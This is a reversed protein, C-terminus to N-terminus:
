AESRSKRILVLSGLGLIFVTAPEPTVIAGARIIDDRRLKKISPSGNDNISPSSKDSTVFNLIRGKAVVVQDTFSESDSSGGAMEVLLSANNFIM